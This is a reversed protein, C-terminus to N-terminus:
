RTSHQLRVTAREAPRLARHYEHNVALYAKVEPASAEGLSLKLHNVRRCARSRWLEHRLVGVSTAPWALLADSKTAACLGGRVLNDLLERELISGRLQSAHSLVYELGISGGTERDVDLNVIALRARPAHPAPLFDTM